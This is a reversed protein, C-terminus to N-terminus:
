PHRGLTEGTGNTTPVSATTTEGAPAPTAAKEAEYQANKRELLAIQRQVGTLDAAVITLRDNAEDRQGKLMSIRDNATQLDKQLTAIQAKLPDGM